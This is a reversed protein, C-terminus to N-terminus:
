VKFFIRRQYLWYCLYWMVLVVACGQAVPAFTGIFRFRGTLAGVSTDIWRYLVLHVSYIFISNMAIVVLPFMLRKMGRIETILMFIMLGLLVWGATYLTYSATWLKKIIPILTSLALGSSFVVAMAGSLIQFQQRRPRASRLLVGTWVGFLVTVTETIFNINVHSFEKVYTRGQIARDIVAGINQDPSFPGAPGAFLFYLASHGALLLAAILIQYRFKLQM